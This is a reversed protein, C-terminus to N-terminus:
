ATTAEAFHVETAKRIEQVVALVVSIIAIALKVFKLFSFM